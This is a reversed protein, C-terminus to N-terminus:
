GEIYELFTIFNEAIYTRDHTGDLYVDELMIKKEKDVIITPTDLEVHNGLIWHDPQKIPRNPFEFYELNSFDYSTSLRIEEPLSVKITKYNNNKFCSEYFSKASNGSIDGFIENYNTPKRRFLEWIKM